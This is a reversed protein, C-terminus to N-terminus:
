VWHPVTHFILFPIIPFRRDSFDPIRRQQGFTGPLFFPLDSGVAFRERRNRGKIVTREGQAAVVRQPFRARVLHIVALEGRVPTQRSQGLAVPFPGENHVVLFALFLGVVQPSGAEVRLPGDGHGHLGAHFVPHEDVARRPFLEVGRSGIEDERFASVGGGDDLNRAEALGIQFAEALADVGHGDVALRPLFAVEVGPRGAEVLFPVAHGAGDANRGVFVGNGDVPLAPAFGVRARPFGDELGLGAVDDGGDALFAFPAEGAVAGQEPLGGERLAPRGLRGGGFALVDPGHDRGGVPGEGHGAVGRRPGAAERGHGIERKGRIALARGGEAAAVVAFEADHHVALDPVLGKVHRPGRDERGRALM